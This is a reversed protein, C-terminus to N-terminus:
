LWYKRVWKYLRYLYLILVTILPSYWFLTTSLKVLFAFVCDSLRHSSFHQNLFYSIVSVLFGFLFGKGIFYLEKAILHKYEDKM